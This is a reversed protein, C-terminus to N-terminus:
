WESPFWLDNEGSRRSAVVSEGQNGNAIEIDNAKVRLRDVNPHELLPEGHLLWLPIRM